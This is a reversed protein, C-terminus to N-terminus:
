KEGCEPKGFPTERHRRPQRLVWETPWTTRSNLLPVDRAEWTILNFTFVVVGSRENEFLPTHKLRGEVTFISQLLEVHLTVTDMSGSIGTSGLNTQVGAQQTSPNWYLIVM